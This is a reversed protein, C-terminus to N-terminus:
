AEVFQQLEDRQLGLARPETKKSLRAVQRASSRRHPQAHRGGLLLQRSAGTAGFAGIRPPVEPSVPWRSTDAAAFFVDVRHKESAMEATLM